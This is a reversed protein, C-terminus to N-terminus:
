PNHVLTKKIQAAGYASCLNFTMVKMKIIGYVGHQGGKIKKHSKIVNLRM